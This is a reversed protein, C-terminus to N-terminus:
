NEKFCVRREEVEINSEMFVEGKSDGILDFMNFVVVFAVRRQKTRAAKTRISWVEEVAVYLGVEEAGVSVNM